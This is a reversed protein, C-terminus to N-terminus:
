DGAGLASRDWIALMRRAGTIPLRYHVSYPRSQRCGGQDPVAPSADSLDPLEETSGLYAIMRGNESLLPAAAALLNELGGVARCVIADMPPIAPQHTTLDSLRAHIARTNVLALSRIVQKLFSVKKRVSDVLFVQQLPHMVQIPIGPFGGGSGIDLLCGDDPLYPIAALSDVFHSIAMAMPDTIRTLNTRRNWQLLAQAHDALMQSQEPSVTVHLAAAAKCVLDCWAADGVSCSQRPRILSGSRSRTM